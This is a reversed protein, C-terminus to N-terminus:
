QKGYKSEYLKSSVDEKTNYKSESGNHRWALVCTSGHCKQHHKWHIFNEIPFGRGMRAYLPSTLMIPHQHSM